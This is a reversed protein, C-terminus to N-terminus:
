EPLKITGPTWSRVGTWYGGPNWRRAYVDQQKRQWDEQVRQDAELQNAEAQLQTLKHLQGASEIQVDTGLKISGTVSEYPAANRDVFGDLRATAAADDDIVKAAEAEAEDARAKRDRLRLDAYASAGDPPVWEANGEDPFLPNTSPKAGTVYSGPAQGIPQQTGALVGGDLTPPPPDMAELVPTMYTELFVLIAELWYGDTFASAPRVALVVALAAAGLLLTRERM